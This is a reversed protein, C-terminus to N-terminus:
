HNRELVLADSGASKALSSRCFRERELVESLQRSIREFPQFNEFLLGVQLM